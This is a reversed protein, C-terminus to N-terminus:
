MRLAWGVGLSTEKLRITENFGAVGFDGYLSAGTVRKEPAHMFALTLEYTPTAAWTFGLTFHDQVVGPALINFTVDRSQIPNGSRGYGARLTLKPSYVYEVGIKVVDVDDWGFGRCNACGLSRPISANGTGTINSANNVSRVDSYNIRKYDVAVTWRDTAKFAAGLSWNSPVDFDGQEAFLGAYKDFRSMRIQSAYAAGLTVRDSVRGMWGVRMGWGHATDNGNNTLKSSDASFGAFGQLGEAKFRQYGFLLSAGVSHNTAPKWSITPSIVLQELNVGLKGDGCLLNFSTQTTVAFATGNRFNRCTGVAAAGSVEGGPYSTNMGGHGHVTVGLALGPNLMRNYAFEPIYFNDLDSNSAGQIGAAGAGTREAGRRPSFWDLGLELRNGVWVMSAPNTAGGFADTAMATAAGAMGKGRMGHGHSFYGDTSHAAPAFAGASAALLVAAFVRRSM